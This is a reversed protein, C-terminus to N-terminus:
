WKIDARNQLLQKAWVWIHDDKIPKPPELEARDVEELPNRKVPRIRRPKPDQEEVGAEVRLPELEDMGDLASREWTRYASALPTHVATELYEASTMEHLRSVARRYAFKEDAGSFLALNRFSVLANSPHAEDDRDPTSRYAPLVRETYTETKPADYSAVNPRYSILMSLHLRFDVSCLM